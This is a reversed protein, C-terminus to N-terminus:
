KKVPFSIDIGAMQLAQHIAAAYAIADPGDGHICITEATVPITKGSLTTVTKEKVMQLVQAVAAERSGIMAGPSQRPTLSGDDQYSRDAFVESCTKLWSHNGTEILTSGALGYLILDDDFDYVATCIAKAMVPDKAAMNYMAGHPKVHHLSAGNVQLFAQLAGLQYLVTDYLQEPSLQHNTRGFNERDAFSPHAGIAVGARLAAEVMSHMVYPDGAHFGCALNVSSVFPLIASDQEVSHHWLPTSEGMDCNLDIRLM